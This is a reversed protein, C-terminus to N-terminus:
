ECLSSASGRRIRHSRPPDRQLHRAVRQRERGRRGSPGPVPRGRRVFRPRLPGRREDRDAVGDRGLARGSVGPVLHARVARLGRRDCLGSLGCDRHGGRRAGGLPSRGRSRRCRQSDGRRAPARRGHPEPALLAARPPLPAAESRIGSRAGVVGLLGAVDRAWRAPLSRTAHGGWRLVGALRRTRASRGLHWAFPLSVRHPAHLVRCVNTARLSADTACRGHVAGLPRDPSRYPGHEYPPM